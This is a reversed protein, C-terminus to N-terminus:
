RAALALTVVTAIFSAALLLIALWRVARIQSANLPQRNGSKSTRQIASGENVILSCVVVGRANTAATPTGSELVLLPYHTIRLDQGRVLSSRDTHRERDRHRSAGEFGSGAEDTEGDLASIDITLNTGVNSWAGLGDQASTTGDVNWMATYPVTRPNSPAALILSPVQVLGLVPRGPPTTPPASARGDERPRLLGARSDDLTAPTRALDVCLSERAEVVRMRELLDFAFQAAIGRLLRAGSHPLHSSSLEATNPEVVNGIWSRSSTV